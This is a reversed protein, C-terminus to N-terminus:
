MRKTAADCERRWRGIARALMQGVSVERIGAAAAIERYSLGQARLALLLRDRTALRRVAALHARVEDRANVEPETVLAIEHDHTWPLWRRRARLQDRCLNATVTFLWAKLNSRDGGREFHELLRVFAGQVADQADEDRRLMARAFRYLSAGHEHFLQMPEDPM